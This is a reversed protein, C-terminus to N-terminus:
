NRRRQKSSEMLRTTVVLILLGTGSGLWTGPEPVSTPCRLTGVDDIGFGDTRSTNLWQISGIPQSSSIGVFFLTGNNPKTGFNTTSTGDATQLKLTGDIDNVDTMFFYVVNLATSLQLKTIDNSDLWNKGGTTTNHRGQFPTNSSNLITFQNYGTGDATSGLGGSLISFMGAGSALSYYPAYGFNEFDELTRGASGTGFGALWADRDAQTDAISSASVITISTGSASALFAASLAALLLTRKM